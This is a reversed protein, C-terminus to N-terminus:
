EVGLLKNLETIESADAMRANETCIATIREKAEDYSITHDQHYAVGVALIEDWRDRLNQNVVSVLYRTNPDKKRDKM